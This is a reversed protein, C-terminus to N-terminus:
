HLNFAPIRICIELQYANTTEIINIAVINFLTTNNDANQASTGAKTKIRIKHLDLNNDSEGVASM